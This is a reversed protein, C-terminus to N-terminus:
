VLLRESRLIDDAFPLPQLLGAFGSQLGLARSGFLARCPLTGILEKM